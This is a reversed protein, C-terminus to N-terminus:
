GPWGDTTSRAPRDGRHAGAARDAPARRVVHTLCGILAAGTRDGGAHIIRARTHAAELGFRLRGDPGRDFRRGWRSCSTFGTPAKAQSSASPKPTPWATAPPSPTPPTSAPATAPASRWRSGARRGPAPATPWPKRPSWSDGGAGRFRAALGDLPRRHGNRRDRPSPIAHRSIYPPLRFPTLALCRTAPLTM